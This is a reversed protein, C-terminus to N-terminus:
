PRVQVGCVVGSCPTNTNFYIPEDGATVGLLSRQPFVDQGAAQLASLTVLPATALEHNRGQTVGRTKSTRRRSAALFAFEQAFDPPNAASSAM